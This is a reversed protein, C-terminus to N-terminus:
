LSLEQGNDRCRNRRVQHRWGREQIGMEPKWDGESLDFMWVWATRPCPADRWTTCMGPRDSILKRFENNCSVRLTGVTFDDLITRLAPKSRGRTVFNKIMRPIGLFLDSNTMQIASGLGVGKVTLNKWVVGLHRTKEENSHAKRDQGFMRSILRAIQALDEQDGSTGSGASRRRTLSRVIDDETLPRSLSSKREGISPRSASQQLPAPESRIPAFESNKTSSSTTSTHSKADQSELSGRGHNMTRGDVRDPEM